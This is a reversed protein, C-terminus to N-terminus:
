RRCIYRCPMFRSVGSFIFVFKMILLKKSFKIMFFIAVALGTPVGVATQSPCRAPLAALTNVPEVLGGGSCFHVPVFSKGARYIFRKVRAIKQQM